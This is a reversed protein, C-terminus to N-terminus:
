QISLWVTRVMASHSSRGGCVGFESFAVFSNERRIDLRHIRRRDGDVVAVAAIDGIDLAIRVEVEETSNEGGHDPVTVGVHSSGNLRLGGLDHM